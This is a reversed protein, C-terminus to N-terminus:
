AQAAAARMAEEWSDFHLNCEYRGTGHLVWGAGDAARRIAFRGTTARKPRPPQLKHAFMWFEVGLAAAAAGIFLSM